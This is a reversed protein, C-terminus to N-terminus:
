GISWSAFGGKGSIGESSYKKSGQVALYSALVTDTYTGYPYQLLEEIWICISCGCGKEVDWDFEGEELPIMWRGNQFDTAMAPVGFDLSRKQNAGTTFPEINMDVGELDELWDIIAQQYFNNEVVAAIPQTENYMDILERATDPSSYKGRRIEIPYRRKKEEDFALCFLVTYKASSKQGIALDVGIFKEKDDHYPIESRPFCCARIHEKSFTKDFESMM